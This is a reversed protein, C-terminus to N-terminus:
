RSQGKPDPKAGQGPQTPMLPAQPLPERSRVLVMVEELRDFDASAKLIAYKLLGGEENVIETVEGVSLGKPYIGGLGSTIIRDGKIVDADRALNVMRPALATAGVGEVIGAVRSELRQVLSGVASKADTLLLVKSSNPFVQVVNGVLGRPTVVPMDKLIGDSSGRNIVVTSTWAGPDRAIVTAVVFDFQPASKKYDLIAKLRVNEAMAENLQLTQQRLEDNESKIMQNDRYVTAIDGVFRVSSRVQFGAKALVIEFPTLVVAVMREAFPFAFKGVAASAALLVVTFVAVVLVVSRKQLLRVKSDGREV